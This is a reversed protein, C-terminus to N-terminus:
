INQDFKNIQNTFKSSVIDLGNACAFTSINLALLQLLELLRNDYKQLYTEDLNAETGKLATEFKRGLFLYGVYEVSKVNAGTATFTPSCEFDVLLILQDKAFNMVNLDANKYYDDGVGFKWGKSTAYTRLSGIIDFFTM